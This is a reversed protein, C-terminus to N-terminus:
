QRLSKKQLTYCVCTDVSFSYIFKYLTSVDNSVSLFFGGSGVNVHCAISDDDKKKKVTGTWKKEKMREKEQIKSIAAIIIVVHFTM